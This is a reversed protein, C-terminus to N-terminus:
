KRKVDWDRWELRKTKNDSKIEGVINKKEKIEEVRWGKGRVQDSSRRYEGEDPRSKDRVITYRLQLFRELFVDYRSNYKLSPWARSHIINNYTLLIVSYWLEVILISWM